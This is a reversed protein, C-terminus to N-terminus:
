WAPESEPLFNTADDTLEIWRGAEHQDLCHRLLLPVDERRERLAPLRIPIFNLREYLDRRFRGARVEQELDRNTAAIVRVDARREEADGVREYTKEQL